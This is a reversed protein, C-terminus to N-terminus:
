SWENKGKAVGRFYHHADKLFGFLNRWKNYDAEARFQVKKAKLVEKDKATEQKLAADSTRGVAKGKYYFYQESEIREVETKKEKALFEADSLFEALERQAELCLAATSDANEMEYKQKHADNIELSIASILREVVEGRTEEHEEASEEEESTPTDWDVETM